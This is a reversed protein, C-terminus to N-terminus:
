LFKPVLQAYTFIIALYFARWCLFLPFYKLTQFEIITIYKLKKGTARWCEVAWCVLRFLVCSLHWVRGFSDFGVVLVVSVVSLCCRFCCATETLFMEFERIVSMCSDSVHQLKLSTGCINKVLTKCFHTKRTKLAYHQFLSRIFWLSRLAGTPIFLSFSINWNKLHIFLWSSASSSTSIPTEVHKPCWWSFPVFCVVGITYLVPRAATSEHLLPPETHVQQSQNWSQAMRRIISMIIGSVHQSLLLYM